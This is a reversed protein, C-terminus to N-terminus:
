ETLKNKCVARCIKIYIQQCVKKRDVTLEQSRWLADMRRWCLAASGGWVLACFSLGVGQERHFLPSSFGKSSKNKQMIRKNKGATRSGMFRSSQREAGGASVPSQCVPHQPVVWVDGFHGATPNKEAGTLGWKVKTCFYSGCCRSFM